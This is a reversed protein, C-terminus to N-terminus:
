LGCTAMTKSSDLVLSLEKMPQGVVAEMSFRGVHGRFVARKLSMLSSGLPYNPVGHSKRFRLM